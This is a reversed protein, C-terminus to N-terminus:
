WAEDTEDQETDKAKTAERAALLVVELIFVVLVLPTWQNIWAMPVATNDLILWMVIPLIGVVACLATLVLHRHYERRRMLLGVPIIVLPLLLALLAVLLSLLSWTQTTSFSGLPVSGRIIDVLPNGTQSELM